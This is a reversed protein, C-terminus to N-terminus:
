TRFLIDRMNSSISDLKRISGTLFLYASTVFTVLRLTPGVEPLSVKVVIDVSERLVKNCELYIEGLGDISKYVSKMLQLITEETTENISGSNRILEKRLCELAECLDATCQLTAEVIAKHNDNNAQLLRNRMADIDYPRGNDITDFYGRRAQKITNVCTEMRLSLTKGMAEMKQYFIKNFNQGQEWAFAEHQVQVRAVAPDKSRLQTVNPSFYTPLELMDTLDTQLADLNSKLADLQVVTADAPADTMAAAAAQVERLLHVWQEPVPQCPVGKRICNACKDAGFNVCCQLSPNTAYEKSCMICCRAILTAMDSKQAVLPSPNTPEQEDM